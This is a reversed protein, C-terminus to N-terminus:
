LRIVLVKQTMIKPTGNSIYVNKYLTNNKLLQNTSDNIINKNNTGIIFAAIETKSLLTKIIVNTHKVM